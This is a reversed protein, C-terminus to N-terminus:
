DAGLMGGKGFRDNYYKIFGGIHEGKGLAQTSYMDFENGISREALQGSYSDPNINAASTIFDVIDQKYGSSTPDVLMGELMVNKSTPMYNQMPSLGSISGSTSVAANWAKTRDEDSARYSTGRNRLHQSYTGREKGSASAVLFNGWSPSFGQGVTAAFQPNRMHPGLQQAKATQWFDSWGARGRNQFTEPINPDAAFGHKSAIFGSQTMPSATEDLKRQWKDAIFEYETDGHKISDGQLSAPGLSYFETPIGDEDFGAEYMTSQDPSFYRNYKERGPEHSTGIFIWKGAEVDGMTATKMNSLITPDLPIEEAQPTEVVQGPEAGVQPSPAPPQGPQISLEQELGAIEPEIDPETDEFRRRFLDDPDDWTPVVAPGAEKVGTPLIAGLASGLASAAGRFGRAASTPGGGGGTRSAERLEEEDPYRELLSEEPSIPDVKALQEQSMSPRLGGVPFQQQYMTPTEFSPAMGQSMKFAQRQSMPDPMDYAIEAQAMTNVMDAAETDQQLKREPQEDGYLMNDKERQEEEKKLIEVMEDEPVGYDAAVQIGIAEQVRTPNASYMPDSTPPSLNGGPDVMLGTNRLNNATRLAGQMRMSDSPTPPASGIDEMIMSTVMDSASVPDGQYFDDFVPLGGIDPALAQPYPDGDRVINFIENPGFGQLVFEPLSGFLETINQAM